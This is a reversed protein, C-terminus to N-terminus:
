IHWKITMINVTKGDLAKVDASPITSGTQANATTIFTIALITFLIKKMFINQKSLNIFFYILKSHEILM